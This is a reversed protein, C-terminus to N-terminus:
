DREETQEDCEGSLETHLPRMSDRAWIDQSDFIATAPWRPDPEAHRSWTLHVEAVRGDALAFLADDTDARRAILRASKGFLVHRPSVEIALQRALGAAVIEDDVAYWPELWEFATM